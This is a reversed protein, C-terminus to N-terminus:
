RRCCCRSGRLIFGDFHRRTFHQVLTVLEVPADVSGDVKPYEQSNVGEKGPEEIHSWQGEETKKQEEECGSEVPALGFLGDHQSAEVGLVVELKCRANKAERQELFLHIFLVRLVSFDVLLDATCTVHLLVLM